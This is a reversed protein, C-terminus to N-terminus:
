PSAGPVALARGPRDPLAPAHPGSDLAPPRSPWDLPEAGQAAPGTVVVRGRGDQRRAPVYLHYRGAHAAPRYRARVEEVPALGLNGRAYWGAADQGALDQFLIVAPYAGQRLADVLPRAVAPDREAALRLMWPDLLVPRAGALLPVLPDESLLPGAPAARLIERLEALRSTRLDERWLGAALALGGLAAVPALARAGRGARGASAACAGLAIAAAVEADLLHNVGTGPSAMVLLLGGLAAALWLAPLLAPGAPARWAAAARPARLLLALGATALLLLGAPDSVAFTHALRLPARVLDGPGAGGSACAALVELFRGGSLADTALVVAAAGGATLLVLGLAARRDRGLALFAAGAAPAVLSTPKAAFALAFAVAALLVERGAPRRGTASTAVLWLGLAELAVALLDGRVASLAHQGAFGSLALM